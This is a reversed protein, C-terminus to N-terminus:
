AVKDKVIRTKTEIDGITKELEELSMNDIDNGGNQNVNLTSQEAWREPRYARLHAKRVDVRLKARSIVEADLVKTTKNGKTITRIDRESEDAITVLQDELIDLRDSVAMDYLARFDSHTKKWQIARGVTPMHSDLCINILFQGASIRECIEQALPESYWIQDKLMQERKLQDKAKTEEQEHYRRKLDELHLWYARAEEDANKGMFCRDPDRAFDEPRIEREPNATM